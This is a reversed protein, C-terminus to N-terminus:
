AYQLVESEEPVSSLEDINEDVWTDSYITNLYREVPHLAGDATM